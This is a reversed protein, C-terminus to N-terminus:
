DAKSKKVISINEYVLLADMATRAHVSGITFTNGNNSSSSSSKRSRRPELSGALGRKNYDYGYDYDYPNYSYGSYCADFIDQDSLPSTATAAIWFIFM